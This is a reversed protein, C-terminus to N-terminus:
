VHYSTFREVIASQGHCDHPCQMFGVSCPPQKPWAFRSKCTHRTRCCRLLRRHRRHHVPTSRRTWSASSRFYPPHRWPSARVPSRFPPPASDLDADPLHKVRHFFFMENLPDLQDDVIPGITLKELRPILGLNNEFDRSILQCGPFIAVQMTEPLCRGLTLCNIDAVNGSNLWGAAHRQMKGLPSTCHM